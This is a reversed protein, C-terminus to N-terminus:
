DWNYLDNQINDQLLRNNIYKIMNPEDVHGPGIDGLTCVPQLPLLFTHKFMSDKNQTDHRIQLFAAHFYIRIQDKDGKKEM